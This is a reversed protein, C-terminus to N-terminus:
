CSVSLPIYATHSVANAILLVCHPIQSLSAHARHYLMAAYYQGGGQDTIGLEDEKYISFGEETKRGLLCTLLPM